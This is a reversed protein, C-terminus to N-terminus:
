LPPPRVARGRRERLMSDGSYLALGTWILAFTVLHTTTLAEGFLAVALIFQLTPAIYQTLGVTALKLRRAGATFLFMPLVTFPGSCILLLTVWLPGNFFGVPAADLMFILAALALPTAILTEIFLGDLSGVPALKRLLGYLAFSLSLTIAIWPVGEHALTLNAVGIVALAVALQQPRSLRERLFIFGLAVSALPNIYYGLSADLLRDNAIAWIFILWNAGILVSTLALLAVLRPQRLIAMIPLLKKQSALLGAIFVTAWIIRYALVEVPNVESLLRWYLPSLGWITFGSVASAVGIRLTRDRAAEDTDLAASSSTNQRGCSMRSAEQTPEHPKVGFGGGRAALGSSLCCARWKPDM